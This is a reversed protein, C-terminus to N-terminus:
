EKNRIVTYWSVLPVCVMSENVTLVEGDHDAAQVGGTVGRIRVYFAFKQYTGAQMGNDGDDVTSFYKSDALFTADALITFKYGRAPTNINGGVIETTSVTLQCDTFEQAIFPQAESDNADLTNYTFYMDAQGYGYVGGEVKIMLRDGDMYYDTQTVNYSQKMKDVRLALNASEAYPSFVYGNYEFPTRDTMTNMKVSVPVLNELVDFYFIYKQYHNGDGDTTMFSDDLLKTVDATVTFQGDVTQFDFKLKGRVWPWPDLRDYALQLDEKVYGAMAGKLELVIKGDSTEYYRSATVSFEGRPLVAFAQASSSFVYLSKVFTGMDANDAMKAVYSDVSYTLINGVASDGQYVQATIPAAYETAYIDDYYVKYVNAEDTAVFEDCITTKGKKGVRLTLGTPDPAVVTFYVGIQSRFRAGAGRVYGVTSSTDGESYRVSVPADYEGYRTSVDTDVTTNVLADTKYSTYKQAEAGYNLIDKALQQLATFKSQGYDFDSAQGDILTQCYAKVSTDKSEATGVVTARVTEGMFQPAVGHYEYYGNDSRQTIREVNYLTGGDGVIGVEIGEPASTVDYRLILDSALSLGVSNITPTQSAFAVTHYLSLGGAIASFGLVASCGVILLNKMSIARKM